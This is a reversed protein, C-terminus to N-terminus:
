PTRQWLTKRAFVLANDTYKIEDLTLRWIPAQQLRALPHRAWYHESALQAADGTLREARATFQIGRIERLAEPQGAISGAVRPSALMARAHRTAEDSLILLAPTEVELAYFCSAAWPEGALVTALGVVHNAALFRSIAEPLPNAAM